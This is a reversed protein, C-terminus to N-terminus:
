QFGQFIGLFRKQFLLLSLEQSRKVIRHTRSVLTHSRIGANVIIFFAQLKGSHVFIMERRHISVLVESIIVEGLLFMGPSDAIHLLCDCCIVQTRFVLVFRSQKFPDTRQVVRDPIKLICVMVLFQFRLGTLSQSFGQPFFFDPFQLDFVFCLFLFLFNLQILLFNRSLIVLLVHKQKTRNGQEKGSSKHSVQNKLAPLDGTFEFLLFETQKLINKVLDACWKGQDVARDLQQFLTRICRYPLM